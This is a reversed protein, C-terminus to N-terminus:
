MCTYQSCIALKPVDTRQICTLAYTIYIGSLPGADTYSRVRHIHLCKIIYQPLCIYVYMCLYVHTGVARLFLFFASSAYNWARMSICLFMAVYAHSGAICVYVTAHISIKARVRVRLRTYIYERACVRVCVCVCVYVCMITVNVCMCVCVSSHICAYMYTGAAPLFIFRPMFPM